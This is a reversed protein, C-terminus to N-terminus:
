KTLLSQRVRGIVWAAASKLTGSTPRVSSVASTAMNNESLAAFDAGCAAVPFLSRAPQLKAVHMEARRPLSRAQPLMCANMSMHGEDITDWNADM